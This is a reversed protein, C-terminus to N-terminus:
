EKEGIGEEVKCKFDLLLQFLEVESEPTNKLIKQVVNLCPEAPEQKRERDDLDDVNDHNMRKQRSVEKDYEFLKDRQEKCLKAYSQFENHIM